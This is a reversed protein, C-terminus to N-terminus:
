AEWCKSREISVMLRVTLIMSVLSPVTMNVRALVCMGMSNVGAPLLTTAATTRSASAPPGHGGEGPLWIDTLACDEPRTIRDSHSVSTQPVQLHDVLECM